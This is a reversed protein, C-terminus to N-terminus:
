EHSHINVPRIHKTEADMLLFETAATITQNSKIHQGKGQYRKGNKKSFLEITIGVTIGGLVTAGLDGNDWSNSNREDIVEKALGVLLSGAVSGTFTWFRNQNSLESAIFAGGAGAVVGAGFHLIKDNELQAKLPTGYLILLFFLFAAM